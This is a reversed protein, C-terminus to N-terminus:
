RAFLIDRIKNSIDRAATLKYYYTRKRVENLNSLSLAKYANFLTDEQQILGKNVLNTDWMPRKSAWWWQCSYLARDLLGRSMEAFPKSRPNICSAENAKKVFGICINMYEWLYKHLLNNPAKWLPYYNKYKIEEASTSWSSSRPEIEEATPFTEALESIKALRIFEVDIDAAKAKTQASKGSGTIADFVKKLFLKDWDKVHHGFTEGDMATIVYLDRQAEGEALGNNHHRHMESLGRLFGVDDIERFSIRNSLIDDRFLVKLELDNVKTRYIKDIPWLQNCAIGSLLVWRHGTKAIVPVIRRAYCMEPLFFGTPRFADEFFFTNTRKNLEIQREAESAPILPLIAHYKSSGVLEIQGRAALTKLGKVIDEAGHDMLTETLVGCINMTVKYNPNSLLLRVLPRYSENCIKKLVAHYQIHPQYIHLFPAWYIM